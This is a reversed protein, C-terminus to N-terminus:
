LSAAHQSSAAAGATPAPPPPQSAAQEPRGNMAARIRELLSEPLLPRPPQKAPWRENTAGPVRRPLAPVRSDEGMRGFGGPAASVPHRSGEVCLAACTSDSNLGFSRNNNLQAVLGPGKIGGSRVDAPGGRRDRGHM